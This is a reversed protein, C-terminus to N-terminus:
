EDAADSTYLLCTMWQEPIKVKRNAMDDIMRYVRLLELGENSDEPLADMQEILGMAIEPLFREGLFKKYAESVKGGVKKGQYLGFDKIIPLAKEYDGYGYTAQRLINLPKLLNRGTPDMSQSINMQRFEETLKLIKVSTTKNQYFYNQWTALVCIGCVAM